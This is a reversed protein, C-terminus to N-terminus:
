KEVNEQIMKLIKLVSHGKKLVSLIAVCKPNGIFGRTEMVEEKNM